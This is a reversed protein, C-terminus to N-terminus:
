LVSEGNLDTTLIQSMLDFFPRIARFSRDVEELFSPSTLQTDSIPRVFIFQKLGILDMEPHERDFGKPATKVRDGRLEGWLAKLTKNNITERFEGADIELEKRIRFLDEKEPKWFGTALFSGGPEVQIYYGGRLQSGLRPFSAAFHTKSPTKDQSFRVDRYIRFMKPQEIQDHADLLTRVSEFVTKVERQRALFVAKNEEFWERDNNSKLNALFALTKNSIVTHPVM